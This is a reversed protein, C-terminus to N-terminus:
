VTSQSKLTCALQICLNCTGCAHAAVFLKSSFEPHPDSGMDWWFETWFIELYSPTIVKLYIRYCFPRMESLPAPLWTVDFGPGSFRFQVFSKHRKPINHFFITGDRIFTPGNTRQNWFVWWPWPNRSKLFSMIAMAEKIESFEGDRVTDGKYEFSSRPSGLACDPM